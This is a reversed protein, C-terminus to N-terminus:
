VYPAKRSQRNQRVVLGCTTSTSSIGRTIAISVLLACKGITEAFAPMQSRSAMRKLGGMSSIFQGLCRVGYCIRLNDQPLLEVVPRDKKIGHAAGTVPQVWHADEDPLEQVAPMGFFVNELFQLAVAVLDRFVGSRVQSIKNTLKDAATERAILDRLRSTEHFDDTFWFGEIERDGTAAVQLARIAAMECALTVDLVKERIVPAPKEVLELSAPRRAQTELSTFRKKAIIKVLDDM